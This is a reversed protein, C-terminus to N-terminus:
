INLNSSIGPKVMRSDPRRNPKLADQRYWRYIRRAVSGEASRPDIVRLVAHRRARPFLGLANRNEPTSRTVSGREMGLHGSRPPITLIRGNQKFRELRFFSIFTSPPKREQLFPHSPLSNTSTNSPADGQTKLGQPPQALASNTSQFRNPALTSSNTNGPLTSSNTQGIVFALRPLLERLDAQMDELVAGLSSILPFGNTNTSAISPVPTPPVIVPPANNPAGAANALPQGKLIALLPILQDVNVQLDQILLQVDEPLVLGNTNFINTDWSLQAPSAIAPPNQARALDTSLVCCLMVALWLM